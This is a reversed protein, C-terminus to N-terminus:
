LFDKIRVVESCQYVVFPPDAHAYFLAHISEFLVPDDSVLFQHFMHSWKTIMWYLVCRSHSEMIVSVGYKNKRDIIKANLIGQHLICVM